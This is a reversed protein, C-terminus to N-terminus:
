PFYVLTHGGSLIGFIYWRYRLARQLNTNGM